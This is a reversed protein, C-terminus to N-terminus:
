WRRKEEGKEVRERRHRCRRQFVINKERGRV